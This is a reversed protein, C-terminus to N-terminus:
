EPTGRIERDGSSTSQDRSEGVRVQLEESKPSRARGMASDAPRSYEDLTNIQIARKLGNPPYLTRLQKIRTRYYERRKLRTRERQAAYSDLEATTFVKAM